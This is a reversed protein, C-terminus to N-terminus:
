YLKMCIIIYSVQLSYLWWTLGTISFYNYHSTKESGHVWQTLGKWSSFWNQCNRYQNNTRSKGQLGPIGAEGRIGDNGPNGPPGIVSINIPIWQINHMPRILTRDNQWGHNNRLIRINQHQESFDPLCQIPVITEIMFLSFPNINSM